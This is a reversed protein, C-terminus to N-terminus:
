VGDAAVSQEKAIITDQTADKRWSNTLDSCALGRFPGFEKRMLSRSVLIDHPCDKCEDLPDVDRDLHAERAAAWLECASSFVSGAVLMRISVSRSTLM